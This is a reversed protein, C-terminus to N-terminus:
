STMFEVQSLLSECEFERLFKKLKKPRGERERRQLKVDHRLTVARFVRRIQEEHDLLKQVTKPPVDSLNDFFEDPNASKELVSAVHKKFLRPVKPLNDSTDGYLAKAMTVTKPTPTGFNKKCSKQVDDEGLIDRFSMIQVRSDRLQWLDKDSSLILHQADPKRHVFAAIADDAEAGKPRLETCKILSMLRKTDPAPDFEVERNRTGKYDPFLEYRLQEGGEYCIVLHGSFIGKWKALTRFLRYVHGTPYGDSRTLDEAGHAKVMWSKWMTNLFDVVVFRERVDDLQKLKM